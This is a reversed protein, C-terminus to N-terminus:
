IPLLPLTFYFTAGKGEESEAWVEGHHRSIIRKIIALGVGTGEFEESNHLRQFINFLKSSYEPNFGVGNDKISFVVSNDKVSSNIDIFSVEKKQSYKIANSILNQWVQRILVQDGYSNLLPAIKFQVKEKELNNFDSSIVERIVENMNIKKFKLEARAVRTLDLLDKILQDMRRANKKVISFLRAVE